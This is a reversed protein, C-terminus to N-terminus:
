TNCAVEGPQASQREIDGLCTGVEAARGALHLPVAECCAVTLAEVGTGVQAKGAVAIRGFAVPVKIFGDPLAVLGLMVQAVAAATHFSRDVLIEAHM